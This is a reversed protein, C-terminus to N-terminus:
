RSSPSRCAMRRTSHRRPSSPAARTTEWPAGNTFRLAGQKAPDPLTQANGAVGNTGGVLNEGNAGFYYANKVALCGPLAGPSTGLPASSATLCAGRFFYWTNSTASGTFDESFIAQADSKRAAFMAFLIISGAMLYKTNMTIRTVSTVHVPM